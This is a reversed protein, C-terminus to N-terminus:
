EPKIGADKIIPGWKEMESKLFSLLEAPTSPTVSAGLQELSQKVPPHGLAAVVDNRVKNVIDPATKAPMFLAYFGSSDFGPFGSEAITPIEPAFPSRSSSTVALVRVMGGQAQPLLGTIAAFMADVRGPILDSLAPSSGRYPVHTMEIGAMRKLLEGSLHSTLGIGPSAYSIKGRSAKAHDIFTALSKAPSSNPVALLNPVVCVMTVPAFDRVPDYGPSPYIYRSTALSTTGLLITHGDPASQAVSQAAINGGAGGKNEIVVPQGWVESLRNALARALADGGGGAPFPVVLRVYRSPYSQARAIRPSTAFAAAGAALHLFQRRPLACRTFM